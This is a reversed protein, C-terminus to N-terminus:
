TFLFDGIFFSLPFAYTLLIGSSNAGGSFFGFSSFFLVWLLISKAKQKKVTNGFGNILNYLISVVILIFLTISLPVFYESFSPVKLSYFYLASAEFIYWQNFDSLY